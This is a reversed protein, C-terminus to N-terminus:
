RKKQKTKDTQRKREEIIIIIIHVIIIKALLAVLRSWCKTSVKEEKEKM